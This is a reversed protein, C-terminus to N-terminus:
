TEKCTQAESEHNFSWAPAVSFVPADSSDSSAASFVSVSSLVSDTLLLKMGAYEKM